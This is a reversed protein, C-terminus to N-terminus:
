YPQVHLRGGRENIKFENRLIWNLTKAYLKHEVALGRAEVEELTKCDSIEFSEQACIPGTDIGADVFHVTVGAVKVGSEFAKRYSELGPFAPLLSPHINVIRSFGRPDAFASIFDKSLIRMYGALVVYDVQLSKLVGLLASQDKEALVRLGKSKAKELVPAEQKDSAILVIEAPLDGSIVASAIAEFNSGRGSALIAIKSIPKLEM